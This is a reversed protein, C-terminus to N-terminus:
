AASPSSSTAASRCAATPRCSRARDDLGRRRRHAHRRRAAAAREAARGADAAPVGRRRLLRRAAARPGPDRQAPRARGPPLGAADAAAARPGAARGRPRGPGAGVLGAASGRGAAARRRGRDRLRGLRAGSAARLRGGRVGRADPDADDRPRHAAGDRRRGGRAPHGHLVGLAVVPALHAVGVGAPRRLVAAGLRDLHLHLRAAAAGPPLGQGGDRVDGHEARRRGPGPRVARGRAPGHEGRHRRRRARRRVGRARRAAAAVARDPRLGPGGPRDRAAHRHRLALLGLRLVRHREPGAGRGADGHRGRDVRLRHLGHDHLHRHDARAPSLPLPSGQDAPVTEQRSM